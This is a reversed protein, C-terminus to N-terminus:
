AVKARKVIRGLHEDRAHHDGDGAGHAPAVVVAGHGSAAPHPQLNLPGYEDVCTV